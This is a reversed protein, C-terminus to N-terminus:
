NSMYSTAIGYKKGLQSCVANWEDSPLARDYVALEAFRMGNLGDGIDFDSSNGLSKLEGAQVATTFGEGNYYCALPSEKMDVVACLVFFDGSATAYTQSRRNKLDQSAWVRICEQEMLINYGPDNVSGAQKKLIRCTKDHPVSAVLIITLGNSSPNLDKADGPGLRFGSNTITLTDHSNLAGANLIAGCCNGEGSNVRLDTRNKSQDLLKSVEGGSHKVASAQLHLVLGDTNLEACTSSVSFLFGAVTIRWIWIKNQNMDFGRM